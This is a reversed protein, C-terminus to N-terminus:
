FKYECFNSDYIGLELNIKNRLKIREHPTKQETNRKLELRIKSAKSAIEIMDSTSLHLPRHRQLTEIYDFYDNGYREILGMRYKIQDGSRHHNSEFSQIHINHLNLATTRNAGVSIYHGGNMKGFNGTAICSQGFDILRSIENLIPQLYKARYKDPSLIAFKQISKEKVAKQKNENQVKSKASIMSKELKIKGQDSNLLWDSYCGCMKGLGYVRHKTKHGCGFGKAIGTGLCAKEKPEIM